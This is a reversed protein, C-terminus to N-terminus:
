KQKFLMGDLFAKYVALAEGNFDEGSEDIELKYYIKETYEKAVMKCENIFSQYEMVYTSHTDRMNQELRGMEDVNEKALEFMRSVSQVMGFTPHHPENRKEDETLERSNNTKFTEYAERADLMEKKLQELKGM